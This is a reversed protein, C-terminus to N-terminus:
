RSFGLGILGCLGIPWGAIYYVAGNTLGVSYDPLDTSLRAVGTLSTVSPRLGNLYWEGVRCVSM